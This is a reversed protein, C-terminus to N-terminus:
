IKPDTRDTPFTNIKKELMVRGRALKKCAQLDLYSTHIHLFSVERIYKTAYKTTQKWECKCRDGKLVFVLMWMFPFHLVTGLRHLLSPPMKLLFNNNKSTNCYVQDPIRFMIFIICTGCDTVIRTVGGQTSRAARNRGQASRVAM